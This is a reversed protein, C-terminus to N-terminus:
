RAGGQKVTRLHEIGVEKLSNHKALREARAFWVMTRRFKGQGRELIFQLGTDSIPTECIQKAIQEIDARDFLKFRIVSTFRDYLHRFRQLKKSIMHMGVMVVPCNTMDNIDRLVEVMGDKVLYDVEDVIITRPRELLQDLIQAFLDDSRFAPAEGLEGVIASLLSRRTMIDTARVYICSENDAAYKQAVETKGTGPDGELLVMGIRGQAPNEVAEMGGYFRVVNNTSAFMKRM